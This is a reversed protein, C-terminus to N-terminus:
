KSNTTSEPCAVGKPECHFDLAARYIESECYAISRVFDFRHKPRFKSLTDFVGQIIAKVPIGAKFWADIYAWDLPTLPRGATAPYLNWEREIGEFDSEEM